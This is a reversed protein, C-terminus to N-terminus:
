KTREATSHSLDPLDVGMARLEAEYEKQKRECETLVADRVCKLSIHSDPNQFGTFTLTMSSSRAAEALGMVNRRYNRLRVADDIQDITM